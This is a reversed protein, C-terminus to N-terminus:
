LLGHHITEAVRSPLRRSVHSHIGKGSEPILTPWVVPHDNVTIPPNLIRDHDWGGDTEYHM